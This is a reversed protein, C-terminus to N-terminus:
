ATRARGAARGRVSRGAVDVDGYRPDVTVDMTEIRANIAENFLQDRQAQAQQQSQSAVQQALQARFKEFSPNWATVLILHYGFETQVPGVM